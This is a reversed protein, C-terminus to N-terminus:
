TNSPASVYVYVYTYSNTTIKHGHSSGLLTYLKLLWNCSQNPYINFSGVYNSFNTCM